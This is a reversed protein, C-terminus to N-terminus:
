YGPAGMGWTLLKSHPGAGKDGEEVGYAAGACIMVCATASPRSTESSVGSTAFGFTELASLHAASFLALPSTYLTAPAASVASAESGRAGTAQRLCTSHLTSM